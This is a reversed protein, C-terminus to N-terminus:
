RKAVQGNQIPVLQLRSITEDFLESMQSCINEEESKYWKDAGRQTWGNRIHSYAYSEKSLTQELESMAAVCTRVMHRSPFLDKQSRLAEYAQRLCQLVIDRCNVINYDPPGVKSVYDKASLLMVYMVGIDYCQRQIAFHGCWYFVQSSLM